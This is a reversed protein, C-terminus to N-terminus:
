FKLKLLKLSFWFEKAQKNFYQATEDPTHGGRYAPFTTLVWSNMEAESTQVSERMFHAKIANAVELQHPLWGPPFAPFPDFPAKEHPTKQSAVLLLWSLDHMIFSFKSQMCAMLANKVGDLFKKIAVTFREDLKSRVANV